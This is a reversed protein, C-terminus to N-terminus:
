NKRKRKTVDRRAHRVPSKVPQYIMSRHVIFQM